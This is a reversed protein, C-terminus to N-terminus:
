PATKRRVEVVNPLQGIRSLVRSLEGIDRIELTLRM